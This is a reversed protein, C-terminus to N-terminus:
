LSLQAEQKLVSTILLVTYTILPLFHLSQRVQDKSDGLRDVTVSLVLVHVSLCVTLSFSIYVCLIAHYLVCQVILKCLASVNFTKFKGIHQLM